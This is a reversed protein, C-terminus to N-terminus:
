NVTRSMKSSSTPKPADRLKESSDRIPLTFFMTTGVGPASKIWVRGGHSEIIGKVVYLGLGTGLKAMQQPTSKAQTFKSFLLKQQEPAIGVGTDSVSVVIYKDLSLFEGMPSSGDLVPPIQKYDIEIKIKGGEPTFKLSNSLLNDVVQSIRVKDFSIAPLKKNLIELNISIDKREAQPSFTDIGEKILEVIDGQAKQLVLKGADLKASDLISGIQGLVKKSQQHIINLFKLKKDEELGDQTTLILEASDKITTVPARLEHVMMHALEERQAEKNVYDTVDRLVISVKNNKVPSIFMDVIKENIRVSKISLEKNNSIADQTMITLNINSPFSRAIEALKANGQIKLIQEAAENIFILDKEDAMIVGDDVGKLLATFADREAELEENFKNLSSAAVNTLEYLTETEAGKYLNEKVSALQIIAMIKNNIILPVYFSSSYYSHSSANLNEGYYRKEINPPLSGALHSFSSLVSKEVNEIYNANIQDEIYTSFHLTDNKVVATSVTSYDYFNKLSSVIIEVAKEANRVYALKEQINKLVSIKYVRDELEKKEEFSFKKLRDIEYSLLIAILGLIASIFM